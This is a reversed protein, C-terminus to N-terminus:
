SLSIVKILHAEQNPTSASDVIAVYKGFILLIM